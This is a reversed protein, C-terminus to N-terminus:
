RGQKMGAHAHFLAPSYHLALHFYDLAGDPDRDSLHLLGMRYNLDPDEPCGVLAQEVASRAEALRSFNQYISALEALAVAREKGTVAAKAVQQFLVEAGAYDGRRVADAALGM